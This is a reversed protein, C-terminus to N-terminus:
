KVITTKVTKRVHLVSPWPHEWTLSVVNIFPTSFTRALESPQLVQRDTVTCLQVEAGRLRSVEVGCAYGSQDVADANRQSSKVARPHRGLSRAALRSSEM